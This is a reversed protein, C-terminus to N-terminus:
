HETRKNHRLLFPKFLLAKLFILNLWENLTQRCLLKWDWHGELRKHLNQSFRSSIGAFINRLLLSDARTFQETFICLPVWHECPLGSDLFLRKGQIGMIHQQGLMLADKTTVM